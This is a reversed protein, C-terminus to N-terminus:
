SCLNSEELAWVCHATWEVGVPDWPLILVSEDVYVGVWEWGM